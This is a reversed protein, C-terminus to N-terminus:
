CDPRFPSATTTLTSDLASCSMLVSGDSTCLRVIVLSSTNVILRTRTAGAIGLVTGAM